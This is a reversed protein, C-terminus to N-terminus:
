ATSRGRKNQRGSGRKVGLAVLVVAAILWTIAQRGSRLFLERELKEIRVRLATNENTADILCRETLTELLETEPQAQYIM